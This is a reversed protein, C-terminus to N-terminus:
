EDDKDEVVWIEGRQEVINYKSAIETFSASDDITCEYQIRDTKVKFMDTCGFVITGVFCAIFCLAFIADLALRWCKDVSVWLLVLFLLTGGFFILALLTNREYIETQNLITM